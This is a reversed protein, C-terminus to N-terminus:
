VADVKFWCIVALHSDKVKVAGNDLRGVTLAFSVDSCGLEDPPFLAHRLLEYSYRLSPSRSRHM